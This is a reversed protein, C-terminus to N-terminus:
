PVKAESKQGNFDKDDNKEATEEAKHMLSSLARHM